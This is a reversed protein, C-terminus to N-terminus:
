GFRRELAAFGWDWTSSCVAASEPGTELRIVLNSENKFIEARDGSRLNMAFIGHATAGKHDDTLLRENLELASVQVAGELVAISTRDSQARVCITADIQTLRVQGTTVITTTAVSHAQTTHRQFRITGSLVRVYLTGPTRRVSFRTQGINTTLSTELQTGERRERLDRVCTNTNSPTPSPAVLATLLFVGITVIASRPIRIGNVADTVTAAMVVHRKVWSAVRGSVAIPKM